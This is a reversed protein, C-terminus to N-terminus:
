VPAPEGTYYGQVFDVGIYRLTDLSAKSDVQEAIVMIDLSRALKVIATVMAQNVKDNAIGRNFGGDIKLYDMKLNRLNSFSGLGSGFDDLAFQCGMSHLVAVFRQAHSMNTIVSSEALEFCILEPAVGSEDLCEVVYELFQSDGLTQGSLNIACRKGAELRLAETGLATLVNRVVWRDIATLLHYRQAAKLFEGPGVIAGRENRMRLLIEVGPGTNKRNDMPVIPQAYLVFNNDKLARQLLQLWAIEGKRRALVEDKASYVHVRSRGSQKAVYCASDAASIVDEVEGSEHSIEVLGISVGVNFVQDRWVFRYDRVATCVDDAIQRAKELPCGVLLMGFEDGGLRAVMDSDRVQEKILNALQRLMNDGATHGSTDNVAKFGDLDMYCVVHTTSHEHSVEILEGLRREFERRNTLGTLADHSAQYSMQRALGRLETVDHLVVVCGVQANVHTHTTDHADDLAMPNVTVEVFHEAGDAALLLAKRGLSVSRSERIATEVPDAFPKRDTEDVLNIIAGLKNGIIEQPKLAIMKVAAENAFDIAGEHDTTLVGDTISALTVQARDRAALLKQEADRRHTIDFAATLIAPKGQYEIVVDSVEVWFGSGDRNLLKMEYRSPVDEGALRRRFVELAQKRHSPHILERISSTTLDQQRMGRKAAAKPNAYIIEDRHVVISEQVSEVLERFLNERATRDHSQDDFLDIISNVTAELEALEDAGSVSVRRHFQRQEAIQAIESHM